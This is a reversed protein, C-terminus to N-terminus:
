PGDGARQPPRIADDSGGTVSSEEVGELAALSGASRGRSELLDCSEMRKSKEHLGVSTEGSFFAKCDGSVDWIRLSM